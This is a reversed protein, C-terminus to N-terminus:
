GPPYKNFASVRQMEFALKDAVRVIGTREKIAALNTGAICSSYDDDKLYEM